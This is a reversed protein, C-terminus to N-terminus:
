VLKLNLAAAAAFNHSEISTGYGQSAQFSASVSNNAVFLKANKFRIAISIGDFINLGVKFSEM